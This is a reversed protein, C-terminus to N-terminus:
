RRSPGWALPVGPRCRPARDQEPEGPGPCSQPRRVTSGWDTFSAQYRHLDGYDAPSVGFRPIRSEPIMEHIIDDIPSEYGLPRLLVANVLSFIASNAGIGVGAHPHDRRQLCAGESAAFPTAYILCSRDWAPREGLSTVHSAAPSASRRGDQAGRAPDSAGAWASWCGRTGGARRIPRSIPASASASSSRTPACCCGSLRERGRAGYAEDPHAEPASWRPWDPCGNREEALARRGAPRLTFLRRRDDSRSALERVLGAEEMRQLSGYITGPGM